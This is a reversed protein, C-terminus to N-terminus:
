SDRVLEPVGLTNGLRETERLVLGLNSDRVTPLLYRAKRVREYDLVASLLEERDGARALEKGFPDLIRSGGWYNLEGEAGVRNAMIVPLGYIMAFFRLNTDWGSPNDFEAGVAELASSIPALLLTAGHLAALWVLAPNWLDACILVAMRWGPAIEVTEIYRGAAFHKGEELQGYTPLNLKRHLHIIRGDRVAVATNYFQAAPGEEIMGFVTTMGQSAEALKRVAPDNRPRALQLTQAGISYGTLSLEPFLLLEVRKERAGAIEALHRELNADFDAPVSETQAVAVSLKNAM